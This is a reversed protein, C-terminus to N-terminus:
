KLKYYTGAAALLVSAWTKRYAAAKATANQISEMTKELGDKNVKYAAVGVAAVGLAILTYKSRLAIRNKVSSGISLAKTHTYKAGSVVPSVIYDNAKNVVPKGIYSVPAYAYGAVKSVLSKAPAAVVTAVETEDAYAGSILTTAIVASLLFNKNM